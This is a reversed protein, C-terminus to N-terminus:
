AYCRGLFGCFRCPYKSMSRGAPRPPLRKHRLVDLLWEAQRKIEEVEQDDRAVFFEKVAQNDKNEYVVISSDLKLLWMYIKVQVAHELKAEQLEDFYEGKISKFDVVSVDASTGTAFPTGRADVIADVHGAFNYRLESEVLMEEYAVQRGGCRCRWGEQRSPNLIGLPEGQGHVADCRPCKWAGRLVGADDLYRRWRAHLDHGNDYIREAKIDIDQETKIQFQTYENYYQFAVKRLCYGWDSPHFVDYKRTNELAKQRISRATLAEISIPPLVM